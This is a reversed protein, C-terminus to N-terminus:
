EELSKSLEQEAATQKVSAAMKTKGNVRRTYKRKKVPKLDKKGAKKKPIKNPKPLNKAPRGRKKKVPVQVAMGNLDDASNKQM